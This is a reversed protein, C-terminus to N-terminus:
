RLLNTTIMREVLAAGQAVELSTSCPDPHYGTRHLAFPHRRVLRQLSRGASVHKSKLMVLVIEISATSAGM